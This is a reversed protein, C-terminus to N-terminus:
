YEPLSRGAQRMFWVPTYEVREGKCAKLFTDNM